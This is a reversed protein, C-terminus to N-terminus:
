RLYNNNSQCTDNDFNVALDIRMQHRVYIDVCTKNFTADDLTGKITENIIAAFLGKGKSLKEAKKEITRSMSVVSEMLEDTIVRDYGEWKTRGQLLGEIYAKLRKLVMYENYRADYLYSNDRTLYNFAEDIEKDIRMLLPLRSPDVGNRIFRALTMYKRMYDKKTAIRKLWNRAIMSRVHGPYDKQLADSVGDIYDFVEPHRVAYAKIETPTLLLNDRRLLQLKGTAEKYPAIQRNTIGANIEVPIIFRGQLKLYEERGVLTDAEQLQRLQQVAEVYVDFSDSHLGQAIDQPIIYQTCLANVDDVKMLLANDQLYRFQEVGRKYSALDDGLIDQQLWKPLIFDPVVLAYEDRTIFSNNYIDTLDAKNLLDQKISIPMIYKDPQLLIKLTLIQRLKGEYTAENSFVQTLSELLRYMADDGNKTFAVYQKYYDLLKGCLLSDIVLREATTESGQIIRTAYLYLNQPTILKGYFVFPLSKNFTYIIMMLALDPDTDSREFIKEIRLALGFQDNKSLWRSVYRRQMCTIAEQWASESEIFSELLEPLSYFEREGTSFPVHYRRPDRQDGDYYQPIDRRGDLWARVQQYEWRQQPNRRLLGRLLLAYDPPIGPPIEVGHTALTYMIVNTDLDSFPHRGLTLELIIMGFSWWDTKPGVVGTFAEPAWYLPTGKIATFKKSHKADILSSVGFDTFVLVVPDTTRVLINSPKLDRHMIENNHLARLAESIEVIINRLLADDPKHRLYDKLSGYRAYEQIEYWRGSRQDLGYEKISVIHEPFMASLQQTKKLVDLGPTVGLRYLKLVLNNKGQRLLYIDAEAGKAPFEKIITYDNFKRLPQPSAPSVTPQQSAPSKPQIITREERVTKDGEVITVDCPLQKNDPRDQM